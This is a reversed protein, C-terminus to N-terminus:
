HIGTHSQEKSFEAVSICNEHLKWNSDIHHSSIVAYSVSAKSTSMDTTLSVKLGEISKFYDSQYTQNEQRLYKDLAITSATLKPFQMTTTGGASLHVAQLLDKQARNQVFNIPYPGHACCKVITALLTNKILNNKNEIRQNTKHTDMGDYINMQSSKKNQKREGISHKQYDEYDLEESHTSVIHGYANSFHGGTKLHKKCLSCYYYNRDTGVCIIDAYKKQPTANLLHSPRRIRISYSEKNTDNDLIKMEQGHYHFGKPAEDVM